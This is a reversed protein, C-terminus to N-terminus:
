AAVALTQPARRASGHPPAGLGPATVRFRAATEVLSAIEGSLSRTAAASEEVMAANQQTARDMSLMAGSIEGVASAQAHNDGAIGSVLAQVDEVSTHITDLAGNVQDVASVASEIDGRTTSLQSRARGAEEEARMALASVLDAVVAFGRGAEGARGAEVAANMALVRTQFAIKDLGDIVGDISTASDAVRVMAAVAQDVVARGDAVVTTAEGASGSTRQAAGATAEARAKMQTIAASSQEISAANAETRKALSETATAIEDASGRIAAASTMVAGVLERLSALADNFSTRVGSYTPPFAPGIDAALDGEAVRGLQVALTEVVLRQEAEARARESDAAAKAVATDRFVLVASAMAGIEDGRHTGPVTVDNNGAALDRMTGTMEVIPRSLMQRLLFWSAGIIIVLLVGSVVVAIEEHVSAVGIEHLSAQVAEYKAVRIAEVGGILEAVEGEGGTAALRQVQAAVEPSLGAMVQDAHAHQWQEAREVADALAAKEAPDELLSQLEGAARRFHDLSARFAALDAPDGSVAHGRLNTVALLLANEAEASLAQEHDIRDNTRTLAAVHASTAFVYICMAAATALVLAFALALKHSISVRNLM